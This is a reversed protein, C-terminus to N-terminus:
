KMSGDPNYLVEAVDAATLPDPVEALAKLKSATDTTCITDIMNRVSTEGVDLWGNAVLQKVHRFDQNSDVMDLLANGEVLGITALIKGKGIETPIVKIRGVSMVEAIYNCDRAVIAATLDQRALINEKLGM